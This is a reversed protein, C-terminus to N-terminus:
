YRPKRRLSGQSEPAPTGAFARLMQRARELEPLLDERGRLRALDKRKQDDEVAGRSQTAGAESKMDRFNVM